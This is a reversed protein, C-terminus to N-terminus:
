LMKAFREEDKSIAIFGDHFESTPVLVTPSM